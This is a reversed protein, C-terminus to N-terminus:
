LPARQTSRREVAAELAEVARAARQRHAPPFYDRDHIRHLERRLRAVTRRQPGSGKRLAATAEDIIGHYEKEVDETMQRVLAREQAATTAEAVWISAEGDADVVHEALWELAEQTRADFPLAALGDIIQAAGLQRLRRWLAIRPTSPERPVRYALFVWQRRGAV